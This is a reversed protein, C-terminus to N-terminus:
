IFKGFILKSDNHFEYMYYCERFKKINENLDIIKM